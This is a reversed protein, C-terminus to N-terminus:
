LYKCGECTIFLALSYGSFNMPMSLINVEIQLASGYWCERNGFNM